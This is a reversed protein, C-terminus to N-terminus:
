RQVQVDKISIVTRTHRQIYWGSSSRASTLVRLIFMLSSYKNNITCKTPDFIAYDNYQM